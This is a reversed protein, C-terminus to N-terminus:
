RERKEWIWVGFDSVLVTLFYSPKNVGLWGHGLNLSVLLEARRGRDKTAKVLSSHFNFGVVAPTFVFFLNPCMVIPHSTFLNTTV